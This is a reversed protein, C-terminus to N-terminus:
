LCLGCFVGNEVDADKEFILNVCDQYSRIDSGSVSLKHDSHPNTSAPPSLIKNTPYTDADITTPSDAQGEIRPKKREGEPSTSTQLESNPRKPPCPRLNLPAPAPIQKSCPVPENNDTGTTEGSRQRLHIAANLQESVDQEVFHRSPIAVPLGSLKRPGHIMQAHHPLPISAAPVQTHVPFGTPSIQGGPLPASPPPTPLPALCTTTIPM